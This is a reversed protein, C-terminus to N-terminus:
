GNEWPVEVMVGALIHQEADSRALLYMQGKQLNVTGGRSLSVEGVDVLCRVVVKDYKPPRVDQRLDANAEVQYSVMLDAYRKFYDVEDNSLRSLADASLTEGDAWWQLELRDARHM